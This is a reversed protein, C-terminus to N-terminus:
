KTSNSLNKLTTQITSVAHTTEESIDEKEDFLFKGIFFLIGAVLCAYLFIMKTIVKKPKFAHTENSQGQNPTKKVLDDLSALHNDTGFINKIDHRSSSDKPNLEM